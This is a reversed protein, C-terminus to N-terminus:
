WGGRVVREILLLGVALAGLYVLAVLLAHHLRGILGADRTRAWTRYTVVALIWEAPLVYLAVGMWTTVRDTPAWLGVVPAAAESALFIALATAGAGLPGLQPGLRHGVWTSATLPIAWMGAMALPMTDVRPAGDDPFVLTGLLGSLVWDPLILFASLPWVFAIISALARHGRAIALIPLALGHVIVLGLIRWGRPVDLPAALVLGALVAFALWTVALDRDARDGPPRM